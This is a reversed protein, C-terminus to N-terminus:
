FIFKSNQLCSYMLALSFANKKNKNRYYNLLVTNEITDCYKKSALVLM